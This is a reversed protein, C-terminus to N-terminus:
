RTERRKESRAEDIARKFYDFESGAILIRGSQLYLVNTHSRGADIRLDQEQVAPGGDYPRYVEDTIVVGGANFVRCVNTGVTYRCSVWWQTKSGEIRTADAPVNAPRPPLQRPWPYCAQLLLVAGLVPIFPRRASM